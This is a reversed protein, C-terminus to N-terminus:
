VYKTESTKGKILRRARNAEAERRLRNWEISFQLPRREMHVKRVRLLEGEGTPRRRKPLLVAV